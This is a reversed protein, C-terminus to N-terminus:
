QRHKKVETALPGTYEPVEIQEKKAMLEVRLETKETPTEEGATALPGTYEPVESM